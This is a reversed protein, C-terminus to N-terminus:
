GNTLYREADPGIWERLIAGDPDSRHARGTMRHEIGIGDGSKLGVHLGRYEEVRCSQARAWIDVDLFCNGSVAGAHAVEAVMPILSARFGSACLSAHSKNDNRMWTRSKTNYYPSCGEGFLDFRALGDVMRELYTPAYWDDDEMIVVHRGNALALGALLNAPLTFRGARPIRRIHHRVYRISPLRSPRDGDDVVIWEDPRITQRRVYEALNNLERERNGTPTIVTLGLM